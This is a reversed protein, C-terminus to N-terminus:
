SISRDGGYSSIWRITLELEAVVPGSWTVMALVLLLGRLCRRLSDCGLPGLRTAGGFRSLGSLIVAEDSKLPVPM